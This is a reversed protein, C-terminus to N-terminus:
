KLSDELYSLVGLPGEKEKGELVVKPLHNFRSKVKDINAVGVTHPHDKFVSEDNLSDGFFVTEELKAIPNDKLFLELSKMKSVEGCWYNMHVNSTSYHIGEDDFFKCIEDKMKPNSMLDELEIARDAERGFSDVSLIVEPFKELLRRTVDELKDLDERPVYSKDNLIRRGNRKTIYSLTGGGESIVYELDHIHTLLFHGWSKSRGTCIILPVLHGKLLELIKFFDITLEDNHTLTGDFDSFVAKM